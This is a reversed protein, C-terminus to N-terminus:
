MRSKFVWLFHTQQPPKIRSIGQAAIHKVRSRLSPAHNTEIIAPDRMLRNSQTVVIDKDYNWLISNVTIWSTSVIDFKGKYGYGLAEAHSPGAFYEHTKETITNVHTPDVFASPNPYCPTVAIFFGGPRIIRHAENMITIFPNTHVDDRDRELRPIHELVDFATVVDIEDDNLPLRQGAHTQLYKYGKMEIFPAEQMLDLGIVKQCNLPNRPFRGCGLDVSVGSRAEFDIPIYNHWPRNM